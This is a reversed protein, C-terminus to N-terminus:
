VRAQLWSSVSAALCGIAMAAALHLLTPSTPPLNAAFFAILGLFYCALNNMVPTARLSVVVSAVVFVVIPLAMAGVGAQLQPLALAAGIGFVVGMVLCAYNALNNRWTGARSSYGVWGVFMVWVPYDFSACAFAAAAATTAAAFTFAVSRMAGASVVPTVDAQSTQPVNM